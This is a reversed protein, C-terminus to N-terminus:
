AATTNRPEVNLDVLTCVRLRSIFIHIYIKDSDKVTGLHKSTEGERGPDPDSDKWRGKFRTMIKLGKSWITDM